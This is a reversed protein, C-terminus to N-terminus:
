WNETQMCTCYLIEMKLSTVLTMVYISHCRALIDHLIELISFMIELRITEIDLHTILLLWSIQIIAILRSISIFVFNCLSASGGYLTRFYSVIKPETITSLLSIILGM